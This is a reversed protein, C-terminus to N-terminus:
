RLRIAAYIQASGIHERLSHFDATDNRASLLYCSPSDIDGVIASNARMYEPGAHKDEM